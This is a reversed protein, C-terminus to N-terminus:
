KYGGWKKTVIIEDEFLENRNNFPGGCTIGSQHHYGVTWQGPFELGVEGHWRDHSDCTWEREPELYWDAKTQYGLGIQAYPKATGCGTLTATMLGIVLLIQKM